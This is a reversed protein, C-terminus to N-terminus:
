RFQPTSCLWVFWPKPLVWQHIFWSSFSDAQPCLVSTWVTAGFTWVSAPFRPGTIRRDGASDAQSHILKPVYSVQECRPASRGCAQPSAPDPLTGTVPVNGSSHPAYGCVFRRRPKFEGTFSDAQSHILKPVYHCKNVTAGFTQAENAGVRLARAVRWRGAGRQNWRRKGLFVDMPKITVM